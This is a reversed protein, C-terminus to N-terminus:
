FLPIFLVPFVFLSFVPGTATGNSACDLIVFTRITEYLKTNLNVQPCRNNLLSRVTTIDKAKQEEDAEKENVQKARLSAREKKKDQAKAKLDRLISCFIIYM